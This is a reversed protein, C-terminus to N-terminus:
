KHKEAMDKCKSTHQHLEMWQVQKQRIYLKKKSLQARYQQKIKDCARRGCIQGTMTKRHRKCLKADSPGAETPPLCVLYHVRSRIAFFSRLSLLVPSESPMTLYFPFFNGEERSPVASDLLLSKGEARSPVVSYLIFSSREEVSSVASYLLMSKGEERSPVVSYLIFSTGEERSPM